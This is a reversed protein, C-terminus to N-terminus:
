ISSSRKGLEEREVKLRIAGRETAQIVTIRYGSEVIYEEETLIHRLRAIVLGGVTHFEKTSLNLDLVENVESISLRQKDM